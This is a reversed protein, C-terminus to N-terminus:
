RRSLLLDYIGGLGTIYAMVMMKIGAVNVPIDVCETIPVL